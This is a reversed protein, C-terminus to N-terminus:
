EPMLDQAPELSVSAGSHDEWDAGTFLIGERSGKDFVM